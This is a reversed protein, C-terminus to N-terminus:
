GGVTFRRTERVSSKTQPDTSTVVLTVTQGSGANLQVQKSFNGGADATTEIRLHDGGLAFVGGLVLQSGADILVTAGPRTAGSVTFSPSVTAGNAPLLNRIFNVTQSTGSTFSWGRDFAIGNSDKGTIRVTHQQSALDSVPSYIIGNPARTTGNTIDLQDLTVRVTNPDANADAFGASITPRVSAVFGGRPPNLNTLALPSKQTSPQATITQPPPAPASGNTTIAVLRNSNDWNVSAGLAEAVFRLPVYTSAGVIFPAVDLATPSGNVSAQTSGIKLAIARNNGQANIQGNAYVVSAGLKEFVGRLPVFVRGAREIPAPSLAAPQGNVTVSVGQAVVTTACLGVLAVAAAFRIALQM